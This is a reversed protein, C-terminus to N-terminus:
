KRKRGRKTGSRSTVPPPPPPETGTIKQYLSKLKNWGLRERLRTRDGPLFIGTLVALLVFGLILWFAWAIGRNRNDEGNSDSHGGDHGGDDSGGSGGGNGGKGTEAEVPVTKKSIVDLSPQRASKDSLPAAIKEKVDLPFLSAYIDFIHTLTERELSEIVSREEATKEKKMERIAYVLQMLSVAGDEGLRMSDKFRTYLKELSQREAGSFGEQEAFSIADLQDMCRKLGSAHQRNLASLQMKLEIIKQKIANFETDVRSLENENEIETLNQLVRRSEKLVADLDRLYRSQQQADRQLDGLPVAKHSVLREVDSIVREFAASSETWEDSFGHADGREQGVAKPM